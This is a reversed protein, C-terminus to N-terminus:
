PLIRAPLPDRKQHIQANMRGRWSRSAHEPAIRTRRYLTWTQCMFQYFHRHSLPATGFPELVFTVIICVSCHDPPDIRHAVLQCGHNTCPQLPVSSIRLM